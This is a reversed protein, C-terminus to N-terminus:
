GFVKASLAGPKLIRYIREFLVPDSCDVIVADYYDNQSNEIYAIGDTIDQTM